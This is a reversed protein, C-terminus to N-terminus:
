PRAHRENTGKKVASSRHRYRGAFRIAMLVILWFFCYVVWNLTIVVIGWNPAGRGTHVGETYYVSAILAGPLAVGDIITSKASSIPLFAEASGVAVSTVFGLIVAWLMLRRKMNM